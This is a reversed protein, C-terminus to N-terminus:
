YIRTEWRLLLDALLLTTCFKTDSVSFSFTEINVKYPIRLAMIVTARFTDTIYNLGLPPHHVTHHAHIHTYFRQIHLLYYM